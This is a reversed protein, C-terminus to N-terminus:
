PNYFFTFILQKYYKLQHRRFYQRSNGGYGYGVSNMYMNKESRLSTQGRTARTYPCSQVSTHVFFLVGGVVWWGGGVVWWGVFSVRQDPTNGGFIQVLRIKKMSKRRHKRWLKKMKGVISCKRCCTRIHKGCFKQVLWCKKM